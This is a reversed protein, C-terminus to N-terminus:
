YKINSDLDAGGDGRQQEAASFETPDAVHQDGGADQGEVVQQHDEDGGDSVDEAEDTLGAESFSQPVPVQKHLLTHTNSQTQFLLPTSCPSGM